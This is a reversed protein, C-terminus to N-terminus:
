YLVESAQSISGELNHDNGQTEVISWNFDVPLEESIAKSSNFMHFARDYRNNGQQDVVTNRRLAPANPDNDLTGIQLTLDKSFYSAPAVNEIPSEDVGYPFTISADPVTYWGAASAVIKNVRAEPKFLMFRHAFQAGASFGFMSYTSSQNGTRSKIEDFLPEIVSFAWDEEPNLTQPSPNNSDVYVNGLIYANGGPFSQETFEPAIIIFNKANAETIWANRIERANRGNGHFVFLVPMIEVEDEPIHYFVNMSTSLNSQNVDFLFAGTGEISIQTNSDEAENNDCASLILIASLVIFFTKM